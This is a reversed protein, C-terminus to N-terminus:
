MVDKSVELVNPRIWSVEDLFQEETMKLANWIPELLHSAPKPVFVTEKQTMKPSKGM